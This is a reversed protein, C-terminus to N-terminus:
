SDLIKTWLMEMFLLEERRFILKLKKVSFFHCNLNEALDAFWSIESNLLFPANDASIKPVSIEVPLNCFPPRLEIKRLSFYQLAFWSGECRIHHMQSYIQDVM